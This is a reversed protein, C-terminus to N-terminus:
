NYDIETFYFSVDDVGEMTGGHEVALRESPESSGAMPTPRIHGWDGVESTLCTDTPGDTQRLDDGDLLDPGDGNNAIRLDPPAQTEAGGTERFDFRDDEPRVANEGTIINGEIIVDDM